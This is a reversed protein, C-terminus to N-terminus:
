KKTANNPAFRINPPLKIREAEFKLVEAEWARYEREGMPSGALHFSGQADQFIVVFYEKVLEQPLVPGPIYNHRGDPRGYTVTIKSGNELKSHAGHIVEVVELEGSVWFEPSERSPRGSEDRGGLWALSGPIVKVKAIVVNMADTSLTAAALGQPENELFYRLPGEADSVTNPVTAVAEAACVGEGALCGVAVIIAVAAVSRSVIAILGSRTDVWAHGVVKDFLAGRQDSISIIM